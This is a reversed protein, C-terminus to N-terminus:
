ENKGLKLFLNDWAKAVDTWDWVQEGGKNRAFGHRNLGKSLAKGYISIDFKKLVVGENNKIFEGVGSTNSVICYIGNVLAELIVKTAPDYISPAILVDSTSFYITPDLEWLNVISNKLSGCIYKAKEFEEQKVLVLFRPTNKFSKLVKVVFELNKRFINGGVFLVVYEDRAIGLSRRTIERSKSSYKFKRKDVGNPIVITKNELDPYCDVFNRRGEESLIIIKKLSNSYLMQTEIFLIIRTKLDLPHIQRILGLRRLHFLYSKMLFRIVCIDANKCWHGNNIILSSDRNFNNIGKTTKAFYLLLSIASYWNDLLNRAGSIKFLPSFSIHGLKAFSILGSNDSSSGVSIIQYGYSSLIKELASLSVNAGGGIKIERNGGVM